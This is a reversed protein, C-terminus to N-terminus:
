VSEGFGSGENGAVAGDDDDALSDDALSDDGRSDDNDTSAILLALIDDLIDLELGPENAPDNTDFWEDITGPQGDITYQFTWGYFVTGDPGYVFSQGNPAGGLVVIGNSATPM